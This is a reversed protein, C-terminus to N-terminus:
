RGHPNRRPTIAELTDLNEVASLDGPDQGLYKRKITGRLIKGSRTKPLAGVFVVDEPRLTKGLDHVVREKLSDQLKATPKTGAALVVFCAIVEGKLDHPIGVAAAESVAEHGILASEIEAPGIRKGAVMITDDSRGHLFWQGDEDRHAWDGHNWVNPWRSFYTEVYREPDGLFGKTMSPAPKKCVLYGIGGQVSQGEEDFIDVDMGLGPGGVSCPKLDMIPLPSVLCGALETGGSINIIPLRQNGIRTFYWDYSEPDWPEGTSALIRLSSLDHKHVWEDGARMLARIATPSIGLHTVRHRGVLQWVRDPEPFDPAGEYLLASAGFFTAGIIEWPGMMWGIDTFWFLRDDHGLDLYYHVEKPIQALCGAHTSITGKPRGTTGSTYMIMAWAEAELRTTQLEGPQGDLVDTWWRDRGPTWPVDIGVRPYVIVTEISPVKEVARDAETKIPIVKGRRRGADATFLVKAKADNLRVAVAEAGFASFTPIATAGIKFCAFLAIATEPVMPMYMGIRDGATIGMGTLASALRCVETNLQRYTLARQTGDEGEWLLAVQDATVGSLHRDICNFVINTEGGIFWRTWAFGDSQDYLRDYPRYWEVGLDQLAAPWFWDLDHNSRRILSEYDPIGHKDMFRRINSNDRYDGTSRWLFDSM